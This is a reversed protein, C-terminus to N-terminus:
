FSIVRQTGGGRDRGLVLADLLDQDARRVLVEALADAALDDLPIAALVLNEVRFTHPLLETDARFGDGVVEGEDTVASVAEGAQRAPAGLGRARHERLEPM